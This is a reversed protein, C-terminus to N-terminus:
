EHTSLTENTLLNTTEGESAADREIQTELYDDVLVEHAPTDLSGARVEVKRDSPPSSSSGAESVRVSAPPLSSLEVRYIPVPLDVGALDLAAKTRRIAESRVKFWDADRQDVWAFFRLAVNSDGLEEVRAFPMQEHSVGPTDKLTDCGLQVAARVDENVGLGVMFDFRRMPNRSYNLIEATFVVSNPLRLHNGDLTMLITDRSTLRIVKGERDNIVVHDKAAFPRRIGLLLSALYNEIIERFAFGLVIGFAGAAGFVAGVLSTLELLELALIAGTVMTVTVVIRRAIDQLLRGELFQYPFELRALGRAVLFFGALLALALGVLPLKRGWISLRRELRDVTPALQEGVEGKAEVKNEVFVVGQMGRALEEAKDVLKQSPSTGTLTVVNSQVAADVNRLGDVNSFVGRLRAAIVSDAIAGDQDEISASKVILKNWVFRVGDISGVIAGAAERAESSGATGRLVVVGGAAELSVNKFEPFTALASEALGRLEADASNAGEGELAPSVTGMDGDDSQPASAGLRPFM